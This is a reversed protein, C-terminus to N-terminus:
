AAETGFDSSQCFSDQLGHQERLAPDHHRYEDPDDHDGTSAQENPHPQDRRGRDRPGSFFRLFPLSGAPDREQPRGLSTDLRLGRHVVLANNVQDVEAALGAVAIDEVDAGVVPAGVKGARKPDVALGATHDSGAVNAAGVQCEALVAANM